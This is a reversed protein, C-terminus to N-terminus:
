GDVDLFVLSVKDVLVVFVVAIDLESLGDVVINASPVDCTFVGADGRQHSAVTDLVGEV